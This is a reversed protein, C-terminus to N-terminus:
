GERINNKFADAPLDDWGMPPPMPVPTWGPPETVAGVRCGGGCTAEDAEDPVPAPAVDLGVGVPMIEAEGWPGRLYVTEQGDALIAALQRFAPWDAYHMGVTFTVSMDYQFDDASRVPQWCGFSLGATYGGFMKCIKEGAEVPSFGSRLKGNALLDFTAMVERM